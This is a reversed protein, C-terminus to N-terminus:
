PGSLRGLVEDESGIFTFGPRSETYINVKPYANIGAEDWARRSKGTGTPGWYVRISRELAVPQLYDKEIRKLQNYCRIRIDAPISAIKGSKASEWVGDWDAAVGRKVSKRGLEFDTNPIATDSKCCYDEAASSRTLEAHVDNGFIQKVGGLRLKTPFYAVFQWHLFGGEGRELQGRIYQVSVPLYPTFLEHKVTLIWYRGQM